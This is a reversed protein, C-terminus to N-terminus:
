ALFWFLRIPLLLVRVIDSSFRPGSLNLKFIFFLIISLAVWCNFITLLCALQRSGKSIKRYRDSMEKNIIPYIIIYFVLTGIGAIIQALEISQPLVMLAIRYTIAGLIFPIIINLFKRFSYSLGKSYALNMSFLVYLIMLGIIVYTNM